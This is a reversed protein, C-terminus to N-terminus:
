GDTPVEEFGVVEGVDEERNSPMVHPMEANLSPEGDRTEALEYLKVVLRDLKQVRDRLGDIEEQLNQHVQEAQEVAMRQAKQAKQEAEEVDRKAAAEPPRVPTERSQQNSSQEDKTDDPATPKM